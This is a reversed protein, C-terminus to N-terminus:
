NSSPIQNIIWGGNLRGLYFTVNDEESKGELEYTQKCRVIVNDNTDLLSAASLTLSIRAGKPLTKVQDMKKTPIEPWTSKLQKVNRGNVAAAYRSLLDRIQTMDADSLSRADSTPAPTNTATAPKLVATLEIQKGQEANIVEKWPEFGAIYATIEHRGPQVKVRFPDGNSHAALEQDIQIEAGIPARLVVLSDSPHAPLSQDATSFQPQSSHLQSLTAGNHVFVFDGQDDNSNRIYSYQPVQDSKGAVQQRIAGYLLDSGTFIPQRPQALSHLVAYAFVSHGDTGTDAVPENGGSSMLTRSRNGMMRNLFTVRGASESPSDVSRTLGGSYCSDSIILVHRANQGRVDATLDDAIIRNSSYISDADVPLWYAKDAARDWFGHGAYYILLNDNGNLKDHFSNIGDLIHNRTADSDLLLTVQFGYDNKLVNAIARADSVATELSPLPSPYRDIGIVIAYYNGNEYSQPAVIDSQEVSRQEQSRGYPLALVAIELLVILRVISLLKMFVPGAPATGSALHNYRLDGM